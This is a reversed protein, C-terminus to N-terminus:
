SKPPYASGLEVTSLHIDYANEAPLNFFAFNNGIDIDSPFWCGAQIQYFDTDDPHSKAWAKLKGSYLANKIEASLQEHTLRYHTGGWKSDQAMYRSAEKLSIDPTWKTTPNGPVSFRPRENTSTSNQSGSQSPLVQPQKRYMMAVIAVTGVMILSGSQVAALIIERIGEFVPSAVPAFIWGFLLLAFFAGMGLLTKVRWGPQATIAGIVCAFVASGLAVIVTLSDGSFM